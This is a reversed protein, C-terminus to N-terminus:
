RSLRPSGAATSKERASEGCGALWLTLPILFLSKTM